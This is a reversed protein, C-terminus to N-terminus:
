KIQFETDQVERTHKILDMESTDFWLKGVHFNSGRWEHYSGASLTSHANKVRIM